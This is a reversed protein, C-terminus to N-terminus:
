VDLLICNIKKSNIIYFYLEIEQFSVYLCFELLRILLGNSIVGTLVRSEISKLKTYKIRKGSSSQLFNMLLNQFEKFEMESLIKIM